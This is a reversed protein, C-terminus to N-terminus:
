GNLKSQIDQGGYFVGIILVDDPRVMFAITVRREFGVTRLGPRLEDRKTGREPFLLLRRCFRLIRGVYRDAAISSAQDSIYDHLDTLQREAFPTFSLWREKSM